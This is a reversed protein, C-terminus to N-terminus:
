ISFVWYLFLEKALLIRHIASKKKWEKQSAFCIVQILICFLCSFSCRSPLCLLPLNRQSVFDWSLCLLGWVLRLSRTQQVTSKELNVQEFYIVKTSALRIKIKSWSGVDVFVNEGKAYWISINKLTKYLIIGMLISKWLCIVFSM